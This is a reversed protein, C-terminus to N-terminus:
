RGSNMPARPSTPNATGAKSNDKSQRNGGDNSRQSSGDDHKFGPAGSPPMARPGDGQAAADEGQGGGATPRNGAGSQAGQDAILFASSPAQGQLANAPAAVLILGFASFATLMSLRNM